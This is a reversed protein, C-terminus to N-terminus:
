PNLQKQLQTIQKKLIQTDNLYKRQLGALKKEYKDKLAHIEREYRKEMELLTRAEEQEQKERREVETFHEAKEKLNAYIKQPFVVSNFVSFIYTKEPGFRQSSEKILIESFDENLEEISEFDQTLTKLKEEFFGYIDTHKLLWRTAIFEALGVNGEAIDKTYASTMTKIDVQSPNKGLFYKRCFNKDKNLHEARLDKKVTEIIDESWRSLITFKEQYTTEKMM